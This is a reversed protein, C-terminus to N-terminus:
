LGFMNLQDKDNSKPARLIIEEKPVEIPIESLLEFLCPFNGRKGQCIAVHGSITLIVIEEGHDAYVTRNFHSKIAQKCYM